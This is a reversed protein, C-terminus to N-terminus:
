GLDDLEPLKQSVFNRYQSIQNNLEEEKMRMVNTLVFPKMFKMGIRYATAQFPRLIEHPTYHSYGGHEYGGTGFSVAVTFEKDDLAHGGMYAWGAEFIDDEWQKLLAPSSYWRIPFQLIIRDADEMYKQEKKVDIKFNPYLEYMNRVTVDKMGNITDYMKQNVKSTKFDPHFLLVLTKM